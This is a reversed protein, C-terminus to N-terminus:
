RAAARGVGVGVQGCMVGDTEVEGLGWVLSRFREIRGGSVCRGARGRRTGGVIGQCVWVTCGGRGVLGLGSVCATWMVEVGQEGQGAGDFVGRFWEVGASGRGRPVPWL